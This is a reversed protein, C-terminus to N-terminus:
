LCKVKKKTEIDIECTRFGTTELLTPVGGYRQALRMAAPDRDVDRLTVEGSAIEKQLMKKATPCVGCRDSFLLVRKSM